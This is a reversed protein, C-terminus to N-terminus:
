TAHASSSFSSKFSTTSKKFFGEFYLFRPALIGLPINNCPGGPVQFVRRARATAPSDFTGKKEM